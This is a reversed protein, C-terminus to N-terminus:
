PKAGKPTVPLRLSIASQLVMDQPRGVQEFRDAGIWGNGEHPLDRGLQREAEQRVHSECVVRPTACKVHEVRFIENIREAVTEYDLKQMRGILDRGAPLVGAAQVDGFANIGAHGPAANIEEAWVDLRVPGDYLAPDFVCMETVGKETVVPLAVAVHYWWAYQRNDASLYYLPQGRDEEVAWALAPVLGDKLMQARMRYARFDCALEAYNFPISHSEALQQFVAMAQPATLPEGEFPSPIATM